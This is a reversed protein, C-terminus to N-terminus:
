DVPTLAWELGGMLQYEPITGTEGAAVLDDWRAAVGGVLAVPSSIRQHSSCLHL